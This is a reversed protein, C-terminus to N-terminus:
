FKYGLGLYLNQSGNDQNAASSSYIFTAQWSEGVGVTVGVGGYFNDRAPSSTNYNFPAAPGGTAFSSNITYGNQLFEHQWGAFATPTIIVKDSVKWNYAAQAGLTYLLSSSNYPDVDLNLSDAGAETFGQVAMYTYQLTTFPGWSFNGIDFDYGTGLALDFEGAGPRGTATRNLGGFNIYRNVTYGHYAGGVLGNFYFDGVDYTGFVGFRVANDITRGSNYEAQLGQYGVYVGTAFADTWSYAAGTSVGGSQSRYNQVSGTSSANAFVGNGDVFSSWKTDKSPNIAFVGMDDTGGMEAQMPNLNVGSANFGKGNIRIVWLQQFMSSNLANAVNFAMSPLSAYQSPMVQEFAAPYQSATLTDLAASVTGRDGGAGVFNDLAAAANFQNPTIAMSTYTAPAILLTGLTNNVGSILFRGRLGAPVTITDFEGSIGGDATLFQYRDGPSLNNGGFGVATLTGDVVAAGSVNMRDFNSLSAAELLFSGSPTPNWNGAVSLTGPSNGPSVLGASILNGNITGNGGLSSGNELTITGAQSTFQGNIVVTSNNSITIPQKIVVNVGVPVELEANPEFVVWPYYNVGPLFEDPGPFVILGPTFNLTLTNNAVRFFFTTPNFGNTVSGEAFVPRFMTGEALDTGTMVTWTNTLFEDADWFNNTADVNTGFLMQFEAGDAVSLKNDALVLPATFNTGPGSTTNDLLTWVYSGAAGFSLDSNITLGALDIPKLVGNAVNVDGSGLAGNTVVLTGGSITTTGTYSGPGTLITTGAGSKVIGWPGAIGGALALETGLANSFTIDSGTEVQNSITHSGALTNISAPNSGSAALVLTGTGSLVYPTSANSFTVSLLEANTGSLTVSGSGNTGFLATDNVSVNGDLGPTGGEEEWNAFDTWNGGSSSTWVGQGTYVYSVLEIIPGPANTRAGSLDSDDYSVLQAYNTARGLQATATNLMGFLDASEGQVLGGVTDITISSNTNNNTVGLAIRFSDNKNSVTVSNSSTALGAARHVPAFTLNTGTVVNSAHNYVVIDFTTANTTGNFVANFSAENTGFNTGGYSFTLQSLESGSNTSIVTNAINGSTDIGDGSASFNLPSGGANYVYVNFNTTGSGIVANPGSFVAEAVADVGARKLFAIGDNDDYFVQYNTLAGSNLGNTAAFPKTLTRANLFVYIDESPSNTGIFSVTGGTIKADGLITLLSTSDGDVSINLTGNLTLGGITLEGPSNGPTINGGTDVTVSSTTRGEGKLTAGSNVTYLGTSTNAHTGNLVLTGASITTTGTYSNDSGTITLTGTNSKVLSGAGSIIGGLSQNATTDIVLTSGASTLTIDADYNGRGLVGSGGVVLSGGSITTDGTYTNTGTLLLTGVGSKTLSSPQPRPWVAGAGNTLGSSVTLTANSTVNFTTGTVSGAGLSIGPGSITSDSNVTVTGKLAYSYGDPGGVTGAALTGGNLTIPGLSSFFNSGSNTVLGGTNIVMPTLINATHIGFTNGFNRAFVFTGENNVTVTNSANNALFGQAVLTGGNITTGRTYSNNNTYTVTGTGNKEVRGNGTIPAVFTYADERDFNLLGIGAGFQVEPTIVVGNSRINLTGIANATSAILIKGANSYVGGNVNMVGTGDEGIISRHNPSSQQFLGSNLNYTGSGGPSWRGLVTWGSINNTGGNQNFVADGRFGLQFQGGNLTGLYGGDLTYTASSGPNAAFRLARELGQLTTTLRGNTQTHSGSLIELATVSNTTGGIDMAGGNLTFTSFPSLSGNAGSRLVGNTVTTAGSYSNSGSLTTAGSGVQRVTGNGSIVSTVSLAGTQNFNVSGTGSGFAITPAALSGGNFNLTGTSGSASAVAVGGPATLAGNSLALTGGTSGNTSGIVVAGVAAANSLTSTGGHDIFATDAAGPVTNGSWNGATTWSGVANTNWYYTPQAITFGVSNGGFNNTLNYDIFGFVLNTGPGFNGNIQVLFGSGGGNNATDSIVVMNNSQTAYTAGVLSWNTNGFDFATNTDTYNFFLYPSSVPSSFTFTQTSNTNPATAIAVVKNVSTSYGQAFAYNGFNETFM